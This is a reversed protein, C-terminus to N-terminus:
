MSFAATLRQVQGLLSLCCLLLFRKCVIEGEKGDYCDIGAFNEEGLGNAASINSFVRLSLNFGEHGEMPETVTVVILTRNDDLRPKV